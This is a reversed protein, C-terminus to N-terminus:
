PVVTVFFTTASKRVQQAKEIESLKNGAEEITMDTM